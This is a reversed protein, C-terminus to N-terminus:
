LESRYPVVVGSSDSFAEGFIKRKADNWKQSSTKLCKTEGNSSFYATGESGLQTLKEGKFLAWSLDSGSQDVVVQAFLYKSGGKEVFGSIQSPAQGELIKASTWQELVGEAEIMKIKFIGSGPELKVRLDPFVIESVGPSLVTITISCNTEAKCISTFLLIFISLILRNTM